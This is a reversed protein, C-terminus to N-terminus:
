IRAELYVIVSQRGGGAGRCGTSARCRRGEGNLLGEAGDQGGWLGARSAAGRSGEHRKPSAPIEKGETCARQM